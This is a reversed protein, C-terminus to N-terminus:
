PTIGRQRDILKQVTAFSAEVTAEDPQHKGFRVHDSMIFLTEIYASVDPPATAKAAELREPSTLSGMETKLLLAVTIDVLLKYVQELSITQQRYANRISILDSAIPKQQPSLVTSRNNLKRNKVTVALTIGAGLLVLITGAFPPTGTTPFPGHIDKVTATEAAISLLTAAPWCNVLTLFIIASKLRSM